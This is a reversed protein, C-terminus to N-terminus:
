TSYVVKELKNLRKHHSSVKHTTIIRFDRQDKIESALGDVLNFIDSYKSEILRNNEELKDGITSYLVKLTSVDQKLESVDIKLVSVDKQLITVSKQLKTTKKDLVTIDKQVNSSKKSLSTLEASVDM